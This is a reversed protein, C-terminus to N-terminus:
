QDRIDSSNVKACRKHFVEATTKGIGRAAGTILTIKNKLRMLIALKM